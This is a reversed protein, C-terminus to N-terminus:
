PKQTTSKKDEKEDKLFSDMWGDVVVVVQVVRREAETWVIQQHIPPVSQIIIIIPQPCVLSGKGSRLALVIDDCVFSCPYDCLNNRFAFGFFM